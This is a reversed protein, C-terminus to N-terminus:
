GMVRSSVCMGAHKHAGGETPQRQAQRAPLPVPAPPPIRDRPDEQSTSGRRGAEGAQREEGGRGEGEWGM